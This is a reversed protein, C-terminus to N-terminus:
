DQHWSHRPALIPWYNELLKEWPFPSIHRWLVRQLVHFCWFINKSAVSEGFFGRQSSKNGFFSGKVFGGKQRGTFNPDIPGCSGGGLFGLLATALLSTAARSTSCFCSSISDLCDELPSLFGQDDLLALPLSALATCFPVTSPLAPFLATEWRKGFFTAEWCQEWWDISCDKKQEDDDWCEGWCKQSSWPKRPVAANRKAELAQPFLAITPGSIPHQSLTRRKM